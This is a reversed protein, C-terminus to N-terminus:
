FLLSLVWIKRFFIASTLNPCLNSSPPTTSAITAPKLKSLAQQNIRWTNVSIPLHTKPNFFTGAKRHCSSCFALIKSHNHCFFQPFIKGVVEEIIGMEGTEQRRDGTEQRRGRSFSKKLM